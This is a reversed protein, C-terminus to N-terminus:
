CPTNGRLSPTSGDGRTPRSLREIGARFTRIAAITTRWISIGMRPPEIYAFFPTPRQPDFYKIAAYDTGAEDSHEELIWPRRLGDADTSVFHFRETVLVEGEAAEIGSRQEVTEFPHLEYARLFGRGDQNAEISTILAAPLRYIDCRRLASTWQAQYAGVDWVSLTTTFAEDLDGALIRGHTEGDDSADLDISFTM